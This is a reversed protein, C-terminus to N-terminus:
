QASEQRGAMPAPSSLLTGLAIPAEPGQLVQRELHPAALQDADDAAVAGALAREELDQRADRFRRGAFGLHAAPDATQELHAGAKVRFEGTAFVHEQVAGNEAHLAM